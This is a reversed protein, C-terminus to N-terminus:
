ASVRHYFNEDPKFLMQSNLSDAPFKTPHRKRSVQEPPPCACVPPRQELDGDGQGEGDGLGAMRQPQGGRGQDGVGM